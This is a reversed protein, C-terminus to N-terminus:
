LNTKILNQINNQLYICIKNFIDSSFLVTNMYTVYNYSISINHDINTDTLKYAYYWQSPIYLLDGPYLTVDNVVIKCYQRHLKMKEEDFLPVQKMHKNKFANKLNTESLVGNNEQTVQEEFYSSYKPSVLKLVLPNEICHIFHGYCRNQYIRYEDINRSILIDYGYNCTLVPRLFSDRKYLNDFINTEHLFTENNYSNIKSNSSIDFVEHLRNYKEGCSVEHNAYNQLLSEKEILKEDYSINYKYIFPYKEYCLEQFQKKTLEDNIYPVNDVNEHFFYQRQIHLYMLCIILFTIFFYIYQLM